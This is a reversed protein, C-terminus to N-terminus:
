WGFRGNVLNMLMCLDRVFFSSDPIENTRHAKDNDDDDDVNTTMITTIMMMVMILMM